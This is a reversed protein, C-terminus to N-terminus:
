LVGNKKDTQDKHDEQYACLAYASRVELGYLDAHRPLAQLLGMHIGHGWVRSVGALIKPNSGSSKRKTMIIGARVLPINVISGLM